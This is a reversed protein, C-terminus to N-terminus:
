AEVPPNWNPNGFTFYLNPADLDFVATFMNQVYRLAADYEYKSPKFGLKFWATGNQHVIKEGNALTVGGLHEHNEIYAFAIEAREKDFKEPQMSNVEVNIVVNGM